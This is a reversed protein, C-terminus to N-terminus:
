SGTQRQAKENQLERIYEYLENIKDDRQKLAEMFRGREDKTNDISRQLNSIRREYTARENNIKTMSGGTRRVYDEFERKNHQTTAQCARLREQQNALGDELLEIRSQPSSILDDVPTSLDMKIVTHYTYFGLGACLGTFTLSGLLFYKLM